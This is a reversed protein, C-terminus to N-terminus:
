GAVHQRKQGSRGSGPHREDQRHGDHGLSGGDKDPKRLPDTAPFAKDAKGGHAELRARIAAYLKANRHPDALRDIDKLTLNTLPVKQTVGGQKVLSLPQAYITDKHAAGGNRRQPARSVFLPRLAKLDDDSYTRWKPACNTWTM